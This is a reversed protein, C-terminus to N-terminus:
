YSIMMKVTVVIMIIKIRTNSKNNSNVQSSRMRRKSLIGLIFGFTKAINLNRQLIKKKTSHFGRLHGVFANGNGGVDIEALSM